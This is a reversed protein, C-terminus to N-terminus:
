PCGVGFAQLFAVVDSFDWQGIPAAIDADPGMTGFATLFAVVDSFDLQDFPEALDAANCGSPQPAPGSAVFSVTGVVDLTALGPIIETSGAFTIMGGNITVTTGDSTVVGSVPADFAEQDDLVIMENVAGAGFVDGTATMTGSLATLVSAFSFADAVVPVPGSPTGPTEYAAGLDTGSVNLDSLFWEFDFSLDNDLTLDFDHITIATPVGYDDLEIDVTGSIPTSGSDSDSGLLAITITLDLNMSSQSSDVVLTTTDASAAAGALSFAVIAGTLRTRAM